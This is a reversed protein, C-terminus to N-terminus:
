GGVGFTMMFATPAMSAPLSGALPATSEGSLARHSSHLRLSELGASRARVSNLRGCWTWMSGSFHRSACPRTQMPGAVREPQSARQGDPLMGQVPQKPGLERTLSWPALNTDETKELMAGLSDASISLTRSPMGSGM